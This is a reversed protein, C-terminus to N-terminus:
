CLLEFGAGAGADSVDRFDVYDFFIYDVFLSAEGRSFVPLWGTDFQYSIGLGVTNTQYTAPEKDRALFNQANQCPYLDNYFNAATQEYYRYKAELVLAGVPYTYSLEVNYADVGWTDQYFRYEDKLSARYPM